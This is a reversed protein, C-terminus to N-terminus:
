YEAGVRLMMIFLPLDKAEPHDSLIVFFAPHGVFIAVGLNQSFGVKM